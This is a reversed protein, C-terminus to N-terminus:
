DIRDRDEIAKRAEEPLRGYLAEIEKPRSIRDEIIVNIMAFLQNAMDPTDGLDIEGPHVANNGIVRCYDLSKQILPPLGKKVLSRIDDNINKGKEGLVVMLKQLCLRLLAAAARPSRTVISRAERFDATIEEPMDPHPPEVPAEDPIFLRGGFWFARQQCHTCFSSNIGTDVYGGPRAFVPAWMQHAFVNCFPCHFESMGITPPYYKSKM